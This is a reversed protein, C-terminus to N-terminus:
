PLVVHSGEPYQKSQRDGRFTWILRLEKPQNSAAVPPLQPVPTPDHGLTANDAVIDLRIGHVCSAVKSTVDRFMGTTSSGYMASEITLVNPQLLPPGSSVPHLPTILDAPIRRAPGPPPPSATPMVSTTTPPVTEVSHTLAARSARAATLQRYAWADWRAILPFIVFVFLPVLIAGAFLFGGLVFWGTPNGNKTSGVYIGLGAATAGGATGITIVATVWPWHHEQV